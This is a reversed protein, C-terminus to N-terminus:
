LKLFDLIFSTRAEISARPIEVLSYNLNCYVQVMIEYTAVAEDFSQKRETDKTYMEQWPPTIFAHVHYRHQKAARWMMDPVPLECLLLYGIVDPIGRDFFTYTDKEFTEGYDHVAHRFMEVAYGQRDGWPLNNGGNELQNRIIERGSERVCSYGMLNIRNIVSTKGMGPGGTIIVAKENTKTKM